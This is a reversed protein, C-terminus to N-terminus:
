EEDIVYDAEITHNSVRYNQGRINFYYSDYNYSHEIGNERCFDAIQDMKNAFERKKTKSPSWRRFMEIGEKKKENKKNKKM